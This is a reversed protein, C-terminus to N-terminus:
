LWPAFPISIAADPACATNIGDLIRVGLLRLLHM